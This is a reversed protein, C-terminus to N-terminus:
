EGEDGLERRLITEVSEMTRNSERVSEGMMIHIM